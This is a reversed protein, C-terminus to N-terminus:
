EEIIYPNSITGDGSLTAKINIVPRVILSTNLPVTVIEGKSYSYALDDGNTNMLYFGSIDNLYDKDLGNTILDIEKVSITGVYAMTYGNDNILNDSSIQEEIPNTDFVGEVVYKSNLFNQNYWNELVVKLNSSNYNISGYVSSMVNDNLMLRYTGDGNVRIIRFLMDNLKVYNNSADAMYYYSLGLEDNVSNLDQYEIKKIGDDMFSLVCFTNQNIYPSSVTSTLSDYYLKGSSCEISGFSNNSTITTSFAGEKIVSSYSEDDGNIIDIKVLYESQGDSTLKLSFTAGLLALFSCSVVLLPVYMNSFISRSINQKKRNKINELEKNPDFKKM